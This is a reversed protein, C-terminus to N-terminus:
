RKFHEIIKIGADQLAKRLPGSPGGSNSVQSWYFHWEVRYGRSILYADKAIEQKIFKSLSQYGYKAERAFKGSLSDVVRRGFPTNIGRSVGRYAKRLIQEAHQWSSATVTKAATKIGLKAAVKGGLKAIYPGLFAGLVAGGVTAASILAWKKWGTLGLQKALLVGLAAGAVGGIIGGIINAAAEGDTDYMNVPNNLCYSFLNYQLLNDQEESFVQTDDANVFRKVVPDYYRSQLYYLGSEIDYYYSRYRFPNLQGITDAM